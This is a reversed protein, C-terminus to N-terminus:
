SHSDFSFSDSILVQFRLCMGDCTFTIPAAYLDMLTSENDNFRQPTHKKFCDNSPYVILKISTETLYKSDFEAAVIHGVNSFEDDYKYKM